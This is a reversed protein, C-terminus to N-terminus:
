ISEEQKKFISSPKFIELMFLSLTLLPLLLYKIYSTDISSYYGLEKKITRAVSRNDKTTELYLISDNYLIAVKYNNGITEREYYYTGVNIDTKTTLKKDGNDYVKNVYNNYEKTSETKDKYIAYEVLYPCTGDSTKYMKREREEITCDYKNLVKNLEDIGLYNIDKPYVISKYLIFIFSIVTIFMLGILYLVRKTQM